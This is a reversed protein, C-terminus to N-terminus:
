PDKMFKLPVSWDLSGEYINDEMEAFRRFAPSKGPFHEWIGSGTHFYDVDRRDPEEWTARSYNGFWDLRSNMVKPLEHAGKLQSSFLSRETWSLRYSRVFYEEKTLGENIRVVDDASRTYLSKLSLKHNQSLKTNLDLIGGWNVSHNSRNVVFDQYKQTSRSVPSYGYQREERSSFSESYTATLLYGVPKGFVESQNGIALSKSGSLPASIRRPEWTNKFSKALEKPLLTDLQWVQNPDNSAVWVRDPIERSGDDMGIWDRDGGRYTLFEKMSSQSNYSSSSNVSFTLKEPFEQTSLQVSGGAFDGPQDPTFTKSVIINDLLSAPIVDFPVVRKLPEPSAITAGNLRTNNYREGMGRVFVYKDGVVTVGTIRKMAEGADSDPSKKIQEASIGDAVIPARKRIGLLSAETNNVMKAEIVVEGLEVAESAMQINIKTSANIDVLVDRITVRSYGIMTAIITQKGIPVESIRYHGDLDSAAGRSTGEVMISVGIMAEGTESDFVTGEISGTDQALLSNACGLIIAIVLISINRARFVWFESLIM